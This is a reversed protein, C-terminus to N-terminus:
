GGLIKKIGASDRIKLNDLITVPRVVSGYLETYRCPKRGDRWWPVGLSKGHKCLNRVGLWQAWRRLFAEPAREPAKCVRVVGGKAGRESFFLCLAKQVVGGYVM